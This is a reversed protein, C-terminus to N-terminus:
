DDYASKIRGWTADEVPLPCFCEPLQGTLSGYCYERDAKSVLLDNEEAIDRPPWDTYFCFTGTGTSEPECDGLPEFKILPGQDGPISPDDDCLFEGYFPIDSCEGSSAMGAPDGFAPSFFDEDCICTCGELGLRASVHSLGHRGTDWTITVCYKWDGLEPRDSPTAVATGSLSCEARASATIGLGLVLSLATLGLSTWNATIM